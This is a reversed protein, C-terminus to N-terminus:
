ALGGLFLQPVLPRQAMVVLDVGGGRFVFHDAHGIGLNYVVPCLQAHVQAQQVNGYGAAVAGTCIFHIKLISFLFAM